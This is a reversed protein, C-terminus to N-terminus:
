NRNFIFTDSNKIMFLLLLISKTLYFNSTTQDYCSITIYITEYCTSLDNFKPRSNSRSLPFWAHVDSPGFTVCDVVDFMGVATLSYITGNNLM